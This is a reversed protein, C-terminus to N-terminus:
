THARDAATEGLQRTLEDRMQCVELEVRERIQREASEPRLRRWLLRDLEADTPSAPREGRASPAREPGEESVAEAAPRAGGGDLATLSRSQQQSVLPGLEDALRRLLARRGVSDAAGFRFAQHGAFQAMEAAADSVLSPTSQSGTGPAPAPAPSHRRRRGTM